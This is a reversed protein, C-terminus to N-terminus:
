HGCDYFMNSMDKVKNTNFNYFNIGKLASCRSFMESM